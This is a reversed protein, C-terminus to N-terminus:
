FLQLRLRKNGNYWKDESIIEMTRLWLRCQKFPESVIVPFLTTLPNNIIQSICYKKNTCWLVLFEVWWIKQMTENTNIGGRLGEFDYDENNSWNKSCDRTVYHYTTKKRSQFSKEIMVYYYCLNYDYYKTEM